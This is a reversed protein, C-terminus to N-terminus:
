LLLLIYSIKFFYIFTCIASTFTTCMKHLTYAHMSKENKYLMVCLAAEWALPFLCSHTIPNRGIYVDRGTGLHNSLSLHMTLCWFACVCTAATWVSGNSAHLFWVLWRWTAAGFSFLILANAHKLQAEILTWRARQNEHREVPISAAFASLTTSIVHNKKTEKQLFFYRVECHLSREVWSPLLSLLLFFMKLEMHDQQAWSAPFFILRVDVKISVM